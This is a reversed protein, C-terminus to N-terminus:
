KGLLIKKRKKAFKGLVFGTLMIAGVFALGIFNVQDYGGLMFIFLLESFVYYYLNNLRNMKLQKLIEQAQDNVRSKRMESVYYGDFKVIWGIKKCLDKVTIYVLAVSWVAILLRFAIIYSESYDGKVLDKITEYCLTFLSFNEKRVIREGNVTQSYVNVFVPLFILLIMALLALGSSVAELLTYNRFKEKKETDQDVEVVRETGDKLPVSFDAKAQAISKAVPVPNKETPKQFSRIEKGCTPCFCMGDATKNGCYPCYM